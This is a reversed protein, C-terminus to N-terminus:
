YTKAGREPNTFTGPFEKEILRNHWKKFLFIVTLGGLLAALMDTQSDWKYGQTGMFSELPKQAIMCCIYEIIEYVSTTAMCICFAIFDIWGRKMILKVLFLERALLVPVMGQLFHGFKDFNNREWHMWEQLFNFYPVRSFTYHAGAFIAYCALLAVLLSFYTFRTKPYIVLLLVFGLIAPAVEGVWHGMNRPRIGSVVLGILFLVILLNYKFNKQKIIFGINQM